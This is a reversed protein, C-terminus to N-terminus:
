ITMFLQSISMPIDTIDGNEFRAVIVELGSSVYFKVMGIFQYMHKYERPEIIHTSYIPASVVAFYLSTETYVTLIHKVDNKNSARIVADKSLHTIMFQAKWGIICKGARLTPIAYVVAPTKDAKKLSRAEASVCCGM